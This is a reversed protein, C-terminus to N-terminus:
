LILLSLCALLGFCVSTTRSFARSFCDRTERERHTHTHTGFSSRYSKKRVEKRQENTQEAPSSSSSQFCFICVLTRSMDILYVAAEPVLLIPLIVFCHGCIDLGGDRVTDKFTGSLLLAEMSVISDYCTSNTRNYWTLHLLRLLTLAARLLREHINYRAGAFDEKLLSLQHVKNYDM